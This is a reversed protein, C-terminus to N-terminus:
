NFTSELFDSYADRYIQIYEDVGLDKLEEFYADLEDLPRAGTIFNISEQTIHDSLLMKLEAVRNTDEQTLYVEPVRIITLHGQDAWAASNKLRVAGDLNDDSYLVKVPVKVEKGTIGDVFSAEKKLASGDDNRAEGATGISCGIKASETYLHNLGYEDYSGYVGEEVMKTTLKGDKVYWGDVLGLPDEGEKPGYHMMEHGEVGFVYDLMKAIVEPHETDASVWLAGQNVNRSAAVVTTDNGGEMVPPADIWNRFTEADPMTRVPDSVVPYAQTQAISFATETDMTFYDEAVLGEAYITHMLDIFTRYDDTAAPLWAQGDKLAMGTGFGQVNSYYGLSTWIYSELSSGSAGMFVVGDGGDTEKKKQFARLMDIFDEMTSPQELGCAEMWETNIYVNVGNMNGATWLYTREDICPLAYIGGDFCTAEAFAEPQSQTLAYVNPMLEPDSIYPTWDLIQGEMAGYTVADTNSLSGQAWVIDPLNGTALALSIKEGIGEAGADEVEITLDYGQQRMYYELYRFVYLDNVDVSPDAIAALKTLIRITIPGLEEAAAQGTSETVASSEVASEAETVSEAASEAASGEEAKSTGTEETGSAAGGGSGGCGTLCGAAMALALLVAPLRKQIKKKQMKKSVM